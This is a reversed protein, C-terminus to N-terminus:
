VSEVTREHKGLWASGTATCEGNCPCAPLAHAYAPTFCV